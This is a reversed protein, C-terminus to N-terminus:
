CAENNQQTFEVSSSEINFIHVRQMKDVVSIKSITSLASPVRSNVCMCM